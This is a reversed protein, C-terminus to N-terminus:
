QPLYPDLMEELIELPPGCRSSVVSFWGHNREAFAAEPSWSGEGPHWSRWVSPGFWRKYSVGSHLEDLRGRHSLFTYYLSYETWGLTRGLRAVWRPDDPDRGGGLHRLLDLCTSTHLVVPTVGFEDVLPPLSLLAASIRYWTPHLMEHRVAMAKGDEFLDSIRMKQTCVVDADLLLYFPTEVMRAMALKIM